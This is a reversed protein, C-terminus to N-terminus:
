LEGNRMRPQPISVTVRTGKGVASELEVTGSMAAVAHRVISLGLGTGRDAGSRARAVQYFREFVREQDEPPIGCGNDAVELRIDGDVRKVSLAVFGGPATFRIANEILNRLVIRILDPHVTMEHCGPAIDVRWALKKASLGESFDAHMEAAVDRTRVPQPEFRALPSELRSLDLLDVVMAQMRRGHREIVELFQDTDSMSRSGELRLTEAAALIASLPTRLEHSANAAFDAKMQVARTLDTVDTFVLLRGSETAAPRDDGVSSDGPLSIEGAHALLYLLGGPAQIQLRM